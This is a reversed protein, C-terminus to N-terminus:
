CHAEEKRDEGEEQRKYNLTPSIQASIIEILKEQLGMSIVSYLLSLRIYVIPTVNHKINSLSYAQSLAIPNSWISHSSCHLPLISQMRLPASNM